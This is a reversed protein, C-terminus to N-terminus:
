TACGGLERIAADPDELPKGHFGNRNEVTRVGKGKITRAIIAVPQAM